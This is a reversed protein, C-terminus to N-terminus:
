RPQEEAGGPVEAAAERDAGLQLEVVREEVDVALAPRGREPLEQQARPVPKSAGSATATRESPGDVEPSARMVCRQDVTAASVRAQPPSAVGSRCCPATVPRM